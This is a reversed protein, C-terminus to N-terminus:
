KVAGRAEARILYQESLRLMIAYEQGLQELVKYKSSYHYNNLAEDTFTSTWFTKRKDDAEFSNYIEDSLSVSTGIQGPATNIIFLQAQKTDFGEIVPQLQWIAEPSSSLFVQDLEQVLNYNNNDIVLSSQEIAKEWENMFLYVKALMATAAGKNPQTRNEQSFSFDDPLLSQASLLDDVIMAYVESESLRSAMSSVRYDTTKIYPVPGFLNVM